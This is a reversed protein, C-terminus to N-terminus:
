NRENHNKIEKRLDTITGPILRVGDMMLYINNNLRELLYAIYLLTLFTLAEIMEPEKRLHVTNWTM